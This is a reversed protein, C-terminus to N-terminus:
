QAQLKVQVSGGVLGTRGTELNADKPFKYRLTRFTAFNAIESDLSKV